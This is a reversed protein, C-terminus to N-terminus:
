PKAPQCFECYVTQRQGLRLVQLPNACIVCPEGARGYVQLKHRFYGPKGEANQFDKLTTGGHTIAKTLVAKIAQALQACDTETLSKAPRAPHIKALFLSENAYINGVGVVVKQDMIITKIPSNKKRIQAFLWEASFGDGLPEPGLCALLPHHDIPENTWLVAGFRRVDNFRIVKGSGLMIDMHDHKGKPEYGSLVKLYGTMGMHQLLVGQAFHWLLYKARRTVSQIPQGAVQDTLGPTIPWRLQAQYVQCAHITQGEVHPAIGARITEVEPLEPM